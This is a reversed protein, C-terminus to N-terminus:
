GHRSSTIQRRSNPICKVHNIVRQAPVQVGTFVILSYM